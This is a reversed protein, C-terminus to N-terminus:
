PLMWSCFTCSYCSPLMRSRVTRTGPSALICDQLLAQLTAKMETTLDALWAEVNVHIQVPKALLVVEGLQSEFEIVSTKDSNFGVRHIGAYLKKLHRQIVAPNTAQGLIELLDDDGARLVCVCM